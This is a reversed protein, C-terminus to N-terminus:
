YGALFEESLLNQNSGDFIVLFFFFSVLFAVLWGGVILFHIRCRRGDKKWATSEQELGRSVVARM